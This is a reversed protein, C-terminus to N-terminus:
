IVYRTRDEFSKASQTYIWLECRHVQQLNTPVAASPKCIYELHWSLPVKSFTAFTSLARVTLGVSEDRFPLPTVASGASSCPCCYLQIGNVGGFGQLNETKLSKQRARDYVRYKPAQEYIPRLHLVTLATHTLHCCM